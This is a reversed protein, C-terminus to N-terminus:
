KFQAHFPRQVQETKRYHEEEFMWMAGEKAGELRQLLTLLFQVRSGGNGRQKNEQKACIVLNCGFYMPDIHKHDM